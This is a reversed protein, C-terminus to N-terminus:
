ANELTTIRAELEQITKVLLPVLKSQDIGQYEPNGDTDVADKEGTVAEPVQDALEHALFGDVRYDSNIWQFNCPKLALTRATANPVEQIDEKLRYDSSTAYTTAYQNSSISGRVTGDPEKFVFMYTPTSSNNLAQFMTITPTSFSQTSNTFSHGKDLLLKGTGTIDNTNTDLDGGLQPTTDEVIDTLGIKVPDNGGDGVYLKKDAINVALEGQSLSDNAPVSSATVSNKIKITAM